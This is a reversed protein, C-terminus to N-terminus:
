KSKSCRKHLKGMSYYVKMAKRASKSSPERIHPRATDEAINIIPLATAPKPAAPMNFPHRSIMV